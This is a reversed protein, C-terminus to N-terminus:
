DKIRCFVLVGHHLLQPIIAFLLACLGVVLWGARPGALLLTLLPVVLLAIRGHGALQGVGLQIAGLAISVVLLIGVRARLGLSRQLTALLIALYLLVCVARLPWPLVVGRGALVASLPVLSITLYVWLLIHLIRERWAAAIADVEGAVVALGTPAGAAHNELTQQGGVEATPATHQRAPSTCSPTM